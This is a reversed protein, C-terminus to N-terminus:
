GVARIDGPRGGRRQNEALHEASVGAPLDVARFRVAGDFGQRAVECRVHTRGARNLRVGDPFFKAAFTPVVATAPRIALRYTFKGGGRDTLDARDEGAPPRVKDDIATFQFDVVPGEPM